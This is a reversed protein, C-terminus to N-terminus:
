STAAPKRKFHKLLEFCASQIQKYPKGKKTFGRFEIRVHDDFGIPSIKEIIVDIPGSNYFDFICTGLGVSVNCNYFLHDTVIKTEIESLVSKAAMFELEAAVLRQIAQQKLVDM